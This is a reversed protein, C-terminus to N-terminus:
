ISTDIKVALVFSVLTKGQGRGVSTCVDYISLRELLEALPRTGPSDSGSRGEGQRSLVSSPRAAFHGTFRLHAAAGVKGQGGCFLVAFSM